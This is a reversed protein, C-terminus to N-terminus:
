RVDAPPAGINLMPQQSVTILGRQPRDLDQVQAIVSALLITMVVPALLGRSGNLGAKYGNLALAVAALAYLLMFVMEPVHNRDATLRKEHADLMETVSQLFQGNPISRPDIASLSVVRSWIEDQLALTPEAISRLGDREYDRLSLRVDVYQNLLSGFEAAYPAPLTRARLSATVIANAEELVLSKRLDYRDLAASFTFSIMLTVLGLASAELAGVARARDDGHNASERRGLARGILAAAILVTMSIAWIIWLNVHYLQDLVAHM